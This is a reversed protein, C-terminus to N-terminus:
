MRFTARDSRRSGCRHGKVDHFPVGGNRAIREAVFRGDFVLVHEGPRPLDAHRNVATQLWVGLQHLELAPFHRFFRKKPMQALVLEDLLPFSPGHPHFDGPFHRWAVSFEMETAIWWRSLLFGSCPVQQLGILSIDCHFRQGLLPRLNGVDGASRTPKQMKKYYAEIPQFPGYM